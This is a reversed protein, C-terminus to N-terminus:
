IAILPESGRPRGRRGRSSWPARVLGTNCRRLFLRLNYEFPRRRIIQSSCVLITGAVRLRSRRVAAFREGEVQKRCLGVLNRDGTDQPKRRWDKCLRLSKIAVCHDAGVAPECPLILPVRLARAQCPDKNPMQYNPRRPLTEVLSFRLCLLIQRTAFRDKDLIHGTM